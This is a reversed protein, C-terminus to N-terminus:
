QKFYLYGWRNPIHMDIFGIPSWVWNFEPIPKGNTQLKKTYGLGEKELTWEVRSFDIRWPTNIQPLYNRGPKKLCDYPIAMEVYWGQDIDRNDNLTGVYTVASKMGSTNWSMDMPGGKKYSKFMFLDMVTGLTNIEIEFYQNEDNNPDIFVEFDHDRYIIDDHNKLTAWLHPEKLYAAIYLYQSDWLLKVKTDYLPKPKQDGEIDVFLDSWEARKWAPDNIKGDIQIPHKTYTVTYSKILPTDLKIVDNFFSHAQLTSALVFLHSLILYRFSPFATFM